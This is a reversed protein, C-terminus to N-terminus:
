YIHPTLTLYQIVPFRYPLYLSILRRLYIITKENKVLIRVM